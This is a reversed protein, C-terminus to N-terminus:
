SIKKDSAEIYSISSTMIKNIVYENYNTIENHLTMIYGKESEEIIFVRNFSQGNVLYINVPGKVPGGTFNLMLIIMMWFFLTLEWYVLSLFNVNLIYALPISVVMLVVSIDRFKTKNAILILLCSTRNTPLVIQKCKLNKCFNDLYTYNQMMKVFDSFLTVFVISLIFLLAIITAEWCRQATIILYYCYPLLFFANLVALIFIAIAANQANPDKREKAFTMHGYNQISIILYLIGFVFAFIIVIDSLIAHSFSNNVVSYYNLIINTSDEFRKFIKVVLDWELILFLYYLLVFFSFLWYVFASSLGIGIEPNTIPPSSSDKETVMLTNDDTM